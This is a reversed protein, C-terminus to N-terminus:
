RPFRPPPKVDDASETAAVIQEPNVLVFAGDGTPVEVLERADRAAELQAASMEVDLTDGSTLKVCLKGV